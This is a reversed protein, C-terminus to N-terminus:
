LQWRNWSYGHLIIVTIPLSLMSILAPPLFVDSLNTLIRLAKFLWIQLLLRLLWNLESRDLTALLCAAWWCSIWNDSYWIWWWQLVSSIVLEEVIHPQCFSRTAELSPKRNKTVHFLFLSPFVVPSLFLSPFVVLSLFPPPACQQPLTSASRKACCTCSLVSRLTQPLISLASSFLYRSFRLWIKVVYTGRQSWSM